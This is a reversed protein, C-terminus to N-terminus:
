EAARSASIARQLPAMFRPDPPDALRIAKQRERAGLKGTSLTVPGENTMVRLEVRDLANPPLELLMGQRFRNIEAVSLRGLGITGSVKLPMELVQALMHGAWLGHNSDGGRQASILQRKLPELTSVPVVFDLGAGRKDDGVHYNLKIVFIESADPAIRVMGPLQEFRTRRALGIASAGCLEHLAEDFCRAVLDVFRGYIALDISTLGRAFNSEEFSGDGGLYIDLVKGLLRPHAKILGTGQTTPFSLLYIASPARLSRLYDGHRLVEYGYVTVDIGPRLEARTRTAAISAFTYCLPDMPPFGSLRMKPGRLKRALVSAEDESRGTM